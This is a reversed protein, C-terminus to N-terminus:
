LSSDSFADFKQHCPNTSMFMESDPVDVGGDATVNVPFVAGVDVDVVGDVDM